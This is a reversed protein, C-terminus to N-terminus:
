YLSLRHEAERNKLIGQAARESVLQKTGNVQHVMSTIDGVFVLSPSAHKRQTESNTSAQPRRSENVQYTSANGSNDYVQESLIQGYKRGDSTRHTAVSMKKNEKSSKRESRSNFATKICHKRHEPPPKEDRTANPPGKVLEECIQKNFRRAELFDNLFEYSFGASRPQLRTHRRLHTLLSTGNDDIHVNSDMMARDNRCTINQSAPKM